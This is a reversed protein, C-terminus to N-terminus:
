FTRLYNFCSVLTIMSGASALCKLDPTIRRTSLWLISTLNEDTLPNWQKYKNIKLSFAQERMYISGFKCLTRWVIHFKELHMRDAIQVCSEVKRMYAIASHSGIVICRCALLWKRTSQCLLALALCDTCVMAADVGTPGPVALLLPYLHLDCPVLSVIPATLAATLQCWCRSVQLECRLLLVGLM